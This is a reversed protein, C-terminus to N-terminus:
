AADSAYPTGTFRSFATAFASDAKSGVATDWQPACPTMCSIGAVARAMPTVSAKSGAWFMM